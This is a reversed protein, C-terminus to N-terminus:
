RRPGMSARRAANVMARGEEEVAEDGHGWQLKIFEGVNARSGDEEVAEDGHGWQLTAIENPEITTAPEEV